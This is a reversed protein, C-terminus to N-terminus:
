RLGASAAWANWASTPTTSSRQQLPLLQQPAAKFLPQASPPARSSTVRTLDPPVDLGTTKTTASRYDIKDGGMFNEISACASLSLALSACAMRVVTSSFVSSTVEDVLAPSNVHSMESSLMTDPTLRAASFSLFHARLLLPRL